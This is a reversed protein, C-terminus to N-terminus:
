QNTTTLAKLYGKLMKISESIKGQSQPQCSHMRDANEEQNHTTEQDCSEGAM